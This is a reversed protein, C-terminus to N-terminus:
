TPAPYVLRGGVYTSAIRLDGVRAPDTTMPDDSLVILDADAGARLTGCREDAFGVYAGGSTYARLAQDPAVRQADHPADVAWSLGYIPGIPMTDSGFALPVGADLVRQHPDIRADREAGLRQVYMGGPGSWQLFNPQMSAVVGREAMRRFQEDTPLELHEIRARDDPGVDAAELATLAAEIARDGIAHLMVQFGADHSRQVLQDLDSQEYNLEGTTSPEDTYPEFLAANRAGISGDTFFKIAGLQLWEDGFGSGLGLRELEDLYQVLPNLRVRLDLAGQRHLRHYGRIRDADVIDHVSTIGLSHAKEVGARIATAIDDDTLPIQDLFAWAAEERLLGHERDVTSSAEGAEIADLARSNVVLLHGDVRSLAAPHDPAVADLDDRTLYRGDAWRSEDWGRGRIWQGPERSRAAERVHDTVEGLSATASLDLHLGSAQLGDTVLHTHADIFGPMLTQGRLDVVETTANAWTRVHGSTGITAIKGDIVALADAGEPLSDPSWLRANVFITDAYRAM